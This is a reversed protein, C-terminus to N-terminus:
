GAPPAATRSAALGQSSTGLPQASQHCVRLRAPQPAFHRGLDQPKPSALQQNAKEEAADTVSVEITRDLRLEGRQVKHLLNVAGQLVFDSTLLLTRFRIRAQEINRAATVEQQRTLLPIEGMQMLYVRVPDDILQGTTFDADSDYDDESKEATGADSEAIAAVDTETENTQSGNRPRSSPTHSHGNRKQNRASETTTKTKVNRKM